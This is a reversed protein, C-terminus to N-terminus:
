YLHSQSRPKSKARNVIVVLSDLLDNGIINPKFLENSFGLADASKGTKLSKLVTMLQDKTWPESPNKKSLYLRLQFLLKKLFELFELGPRMSRHSLRKKYTEVYIEKLCQPNTVLEGTSNKKATPVESHKPFLKKKLKWMNLRAVDGDGNSIEETHKIIKDGNEDACRLANEHDIKDIKSKM